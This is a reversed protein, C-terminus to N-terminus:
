PAVGVEELLDGLVQDSDFFSEALGRAARRHTDYDGVIRGAGEVAEQVTRFAVLGEGVPYNRSFGTDQVLAPKGSALYRVTRDSFWGTGCRVYIDQAVSFEASSSQVYGRFSAPDPCAVKPDVLRWGHSRLQFLDERDDPHIDLAMEFVHGAREPMDVFRRFQHAKQGLTLGGAEVPGFPGRWSAVTSFCGRDGPAVPWDELVVPPRTPRWPIGNTPVTCGAAGVNEGVTFYFDHGELRPGPLGQAHWFQTYGPDTDVYVKTRPLSKLPELTLHGSVNILLDADSAIDLLDALTLGHTRDGCILSAAGSLGVQEIARDFHAVNVSGEFAVSRGDADVCGEPPIQEAFRVEFGLKRFGLVYSLRSWAAGGNLPKAALAGGVLVTTV